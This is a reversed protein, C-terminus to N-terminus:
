ADGIRAPQMASDSDGAHGPMAGFTAACLMAVLLFYKSM